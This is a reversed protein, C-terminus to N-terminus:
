IIVFHQNLFNVMWDENIDLDTHYLIKGILISDNYIYVINNYKLEENYYTFFEYNLNKSELKVVDIIIDLSMTYYPVDEDEASSNGLESFYLSLKIELKPNKYINEEISDYRFLYHESIINTATTVEQFFLCNYNSLHDELQSSTDFILSNLPVNIIDYKIKNIKVVNGNEYSCKTCEQHKQGMDDSTPEVDIIWGYIHAEKAQIDKCLCEEYHYKDDSKLVYNHIHNDNYVIETDQNVIYGCICEQHKKGNMSITAELDIIWDLIHEESNIVDGCTCVQFHCEENYESVYKHIHEKKTSNDCGTILFVSLIIYLCLLYNKKM